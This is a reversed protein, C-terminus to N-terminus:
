KKRVISFKLNKPKENTSKFRIQYNIKKNSQLIIEFEGETGPAIKEKILNNSKITDALYINKFDINKYSVNFYYKKNESIVTNEKQECSFLKFFILEDQFLNNSYKKYFFLIIVLIFIALILIIKKKTKKM